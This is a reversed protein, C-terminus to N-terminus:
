AAPRRGRLWGVAFVVASVALGPYMPELGLPYHPWGDVPHLHGWLLWALSTGSALLMAALATAPHVRWRTAYATLLPLLLGPVFVTGVAYWIGVVSPLGWALALALLSTLLLGLPAWRAADEAPGGRLRWVLDRSFSVGCLFTYSVLTSMVTALMGTYFLGKALPPLLREALLPYAMKPDIDPLAARAYLGAINTMADFAIWFLVAVLIGWCATRGDKAAYCRQHFGPDVMTWLAIFFWALIVQPQNGGHWTLHTAAGQAVLSDRLWGLGGLGRLCYPLIIAFGLFMLVFQVLNVRVDARFGGTYVYITSLVLGLLMAPLLALGFILQLLVGLMLIYAAPVTMLWTYVGGLLGAPRGYAEAIKDPITYLEAARIRPALLLAFVVAFVYYPVGFVTWASLGSQHAYEGIGLIGGYWTSVLTAVFAPLTLTRGALFYSEASRDRRVFALGAVLLGVLYLGIVAYDVAAFRMASTM